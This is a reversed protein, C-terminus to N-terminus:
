SAVAEGAPAAAARRARQAREVDSMLGLLTEITRLEVLVNRPVDDGLRVVVTNLRGNLSFAAFGSLLDVLAHMHRKSAADQDELERRLQLVENALWTVATEGAYGSPIGVRERAAQLAHMTASASDREARMSRVRETAQHLRTRVSALVDRRADALDEAHARELKVLLRLLTAAEATNM